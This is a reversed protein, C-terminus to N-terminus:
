RMFELFSLRRARSTVTYLYELRTNVDELESATQFPDVALLDTRVTDAGAIQAQLNVRTKELQEQLFGVEGARSVLSDKATLATQQAMSILATKDQQSIAPNDQSKALAASKLLDRFVQQDARVELSMSRGEAIQIPELDQSSGQYILTEFDGGTSFFTDLRNSVDTATTAGSLATEIASWLTDLPPLPSRDTAQGAFVHRGAVAANLATVVEGFATDAAMGIFVSAQALGSQPGVVLSEVLQETRQRITGLSTSAIQLFMETERNARLHSEAIAKRNTIDALLTMDGRLHNVPDSTQGSALESSLRTQTSKLDRSQAQAILSRALDSFAHVKIM